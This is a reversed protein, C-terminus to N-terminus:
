CHMHCCPLVSCCGFLVSDQVGVESRLETARSNSRMSRLDQLVNAALRESKAM